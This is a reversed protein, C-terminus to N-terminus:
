EGGCGWGWAQRWGGSRCGIAGKTGIVSFEKRGSEGCGRGRGVGGIGRVEVELEMRAPRTQNSILLAQLANVRGDAVDQGNHHDPPHVGCRWSTEKRGLVRNAIM